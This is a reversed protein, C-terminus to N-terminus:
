NNGIISLFALIQFPLFPFGAWAPTNRGPNPYRFSKGRSVVNGVTAFRTEMRKDYGGKSDPIFFGAPM